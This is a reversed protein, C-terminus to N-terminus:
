AQATGCKSCFKAAAKLKSGCSICFKGESEVELPSMTPPSMQSTPFTEVGKYMDTVAGSPKFSDDTEPALDSEKKSGKEEIYLLLRPGREGKISVQEGLWLAFKRLTMEPTSFTLSHTSMYEETASRGNFVKTM